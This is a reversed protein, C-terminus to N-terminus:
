AAEKTEATLEWLPGVAELAVRTPTFRRAAEYLRIPLRERAPRCKAWPESISPPCTEIRRFGGREALRRADRASLLNPPWEHRGRLKLYSVLARRPLWAVGWLGLHPDTTLTFRNPSWVILRGGPRLVRKWEAVARAPQDLHELVSDAVIADFTESPYPLKEAEAAALSIQLRHDALRRRAIVLWRAAIDVGDITLGARKAAVLLGGTGCGVELIRGNRPLREALAASRGEASAIHRLFRDRRRDVVDDTMAYYAHSLELATSEGALADLREAKARDEALSLYRDSSLRLDPLGAVLPYTRACRECRLGEALAMLFEHCEPCAFRHEQFGQGSLNM